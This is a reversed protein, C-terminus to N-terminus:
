ILRAAQIGGYLAAGVKQLIEAAMDIGGAQSELFLVKFFEAPPHVAKDGAIKLRLDHDGDYFKIRLKIERLNGRLKESDELLELRKARAIRVRNEKSLIDVIATVPALHAGSSHVELEVQHLLGLRIALNRSDTEIHGFEVVM